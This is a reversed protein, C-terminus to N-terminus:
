EEPLAPTRRPRRAAGPEAPRADLPGAIQEPGNASSPKVSGDAGHMPGIATDTNSASALAAFTENRDHLSLMWEGIRGRTRLRHARPAKDHSKLSEDSKPTFDLM